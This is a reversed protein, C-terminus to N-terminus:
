KRVSYIIGGVIGIILGFAWDILGFSVATRPLIGYFKFIELYSGERLGLGNITIPVALIFLVIPQFIFYDLLGIRLHLAKGILYYHLIVNVQLLFAWFFAKSLFVKRNRFILITERFSLLKQKVKTLFKLDPIKEVAWRGAPLFFITTLILGLIGLLLAVWIVPIKSAMDLRLLSAALAFVLLVVIGTFRDVIVIASSKLVSRSYRSGDWIRVVDGGFRTPLFNNFFGAVLYSQVLIGMPVFDGQARILVQWRIASILFGFFHLLFSVALWFLSAGKLVELIGQISTKFILLLAIIFFSFVFKLVFLFINKRKPM